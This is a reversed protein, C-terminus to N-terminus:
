DSGGSAPASCTLLEKFKPIIVDNLSTIGGFILFLRMVFLRLESADAHDGKSRAVDQGASTMAM